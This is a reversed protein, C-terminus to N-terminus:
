VPKLAPQGGCGSEPPHQLTRAGRVVRLQGPRNGTTALVFRRGPRAGALYSQRSAGEKEPSHRIASLRDADDAPPLREHLLDAGTADLLQGTGWPARLASERANSM